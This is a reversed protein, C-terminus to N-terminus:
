WLPGVRRWGWHILAIVGVVVLVDDMGFWQPPRLIERLGESM